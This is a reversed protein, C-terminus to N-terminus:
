NKGVGEKKLISKVTTSPKAGEGLWYNIRDTKLTVAAPDVMPNYTGLLELFRGDRPCEIDAAVIRYFPKKKTGKRTLRIKVAM